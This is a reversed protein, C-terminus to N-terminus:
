SPSYGRRYDRTALGYSAGTIFSEIIYPAITAAFGTLFGTAIAATSAAIALPYSILYSGLHRIGLNFGDKLFRLKGKLGKYQGRNFLYLSAAFGLQDGIFNSAAALIPLGPAFTYGFANYTKNLLTDVGPVYNAIKDANLVGAAAAALGTLQGTVVSQNYGKLKDELGM